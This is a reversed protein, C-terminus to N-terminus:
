ASRRTERRPVIPASLRIEKLFLRLLQSGALVLVAMYIGSVALPLFIRHCWTFLIVGAALGLARFRMGAGQGSKGGRGAALCFLTWLFVLVVEAMMLLTRTNQLVPGLPERLLVGFVTVALVAMGAAGAIIALITDNKGTEM